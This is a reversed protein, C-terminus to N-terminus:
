SNLLVAENKVLYDPNYFITKISKFFIYYFWKSQCSYLACSQVDIYSIIDNWLVTNQGYQLFTAKLNGIVM